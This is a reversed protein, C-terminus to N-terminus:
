LSIFAGGFFNIFLIKAGSKEQHRLAVLALVVRRLDVVLTHEALVDGADGKV